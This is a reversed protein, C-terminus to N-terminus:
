EVVAGIPVMGSTRENSWESEWETQESVNVFAASFNQEIEAAPLFAVENTYVSEQGINPRRYDSLYTLWDILWDIM